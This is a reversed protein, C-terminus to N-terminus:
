MVAVAPNLSNSTTGPILAPATQWEVGWYFYNVAGIRYHLGPNDGAQRWVVM